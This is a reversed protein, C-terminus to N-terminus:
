FPENSAAVELGSRVACLLAEESFPKPLFDIAGARMLEAQVRGNGHATIFIIPIQRNEAALRRQLEPGSLGPMRVDVILCATDQLFPSSLFNEATSFSKAEFGVSRLLSTTAERVSEDDDVISILQIRLAGVM